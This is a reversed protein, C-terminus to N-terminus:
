KIEIKSIKDTLHKRLYYTLMGIIMSKSNEDKHKELELDITTSSVRFYFPENQYQEKVHTFLPLTVNEQIKIRRKLLLWTTADNELSDLIEQRLARVANDKSSSPYIYLEM